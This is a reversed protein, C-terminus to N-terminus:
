GGQAEPDEDAFHIIQYRTPNNLLMLRDMRAFHKLATDAM